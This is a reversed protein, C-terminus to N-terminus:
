TDTHDTHATHSVMVRPDVVLQGTGFEDPDMVHVSVACPRDRPFEVRARKGPVAQEFGDLSDRNCDRGAVVRRHGVFRDVSAYV